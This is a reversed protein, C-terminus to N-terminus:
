LGNISQIEPWMSKEREDKAGEPDVGEGGLGASENAESFVEGGETERMLATAKALAVLSGPETWNRRWRRAEEAVGSVESM